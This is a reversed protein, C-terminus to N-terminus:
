EKKYSLVCSQGSGFLSLCQWGGARGLWGRELCTQTLHAEDKLHVTNPLAAKSSCSQFPEQEVILVVHTHFILGLARAWNWGEQVSDLVVTKYCVAIDRVATDFHRLM